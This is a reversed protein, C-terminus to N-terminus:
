ELIKQAIFSLDSIDVKGDGNVDARKAQEWDSDASTKGYHAAVIGLDGVSVKGDNNLDPTLEGAVLEIEISTSAVDVDMGAGNGVSANAVSITGTTPQDLQKAKFTLAAILDDATIGHEGGQSALILRVSGNGEKTEIIAVGDILSVASVFEMLNANYQVTMDVAYVSEYVSELGLGVTFEKTFNVTSPASLTATLVQPAAPIVTVRSVATYGGVETTATIDASGAGIATVVTKGNVLEVKAVAANSSAWTVKPNTANAPLVTAALETTEGVQLSVTEKDVAVGTVPVEAVHNAYAIDDFAATSAGFVRAGMKGATTPLSALTGDFYTTGNVSFTIKSGVYKVKVISTVDKRLAAATNNTVLGYSDEANVWYWSGNDFGVSAWSTSSAYRFIIGERIATSQPTIKFEIEGDQISPSNQDVFLNSTNNATLQLAHQSAGGPASVISMSGVNVGTLHEWGGLSNDEFNQSYRIPLEGEAAKVTNTGVFGITGIMLTFALTFGAVMKKTKM